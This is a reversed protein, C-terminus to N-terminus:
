DVPVSFGSFALVDTEEISRSVAEVNEFGVSDSSEPLNAAGFRGTLEDSLASAERSLVLCQCPVGDVSKESLWSWDKPPWCPASRMVLLVMAKDGLESSSSSNMEEMLGLSSVVGGTVPLM